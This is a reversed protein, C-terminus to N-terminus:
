WDRMIWLLNAANGNSDSYRENTVSCVTVEEKM